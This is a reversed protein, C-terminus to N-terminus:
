LSRFDSMIREDGRMVTGMCPVLVTRDAFATLVHSLRHLFAGGIKILGIVTLFDFYIVAPSTM